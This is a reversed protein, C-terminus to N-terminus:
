CHLSADALIKLLNPTCRFIEVVIFLCKIKSVHCLLHNSLYKSYNLTCPFVTCLDNHFSKRPLGHTCPFSDRVTCPDNHFAKRPLGHTCPFSDRITCPLPQSTDKGTCPHILHNEKVTYLPDYSTRNIQAPCM